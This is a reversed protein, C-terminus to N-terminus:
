APFDDSTCRRFERREFLDYRPGRHVRCRNDNTVLEGVWWQHSYVFAGQTAHELLKALMM